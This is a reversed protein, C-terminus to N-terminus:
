FSLKCPIQLSHIKLFRLIVEPTPAPGRLNLRDQSKLMSSLASVPVGWGLDKKKGM